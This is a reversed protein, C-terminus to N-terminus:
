QAGRRPLVTGAVLAGLFAPIATVVPWMVLALFWVLRITATHSL